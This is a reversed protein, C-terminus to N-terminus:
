RGPDVGSGRVHVGAGSFALREVNSQNRKKTFNSSAPKVTALVTVAV